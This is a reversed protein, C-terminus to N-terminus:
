DTTTFHDANLPEGRNWRYAVLPGGKGASYDVCVATASDLTPVGSMWYHGFFTPKESGGDLRVHQPLPMHRLAARDSEPLLAAEGYTTAARDWWRIRVRDRTHGDKDQFRHPSPLPIEIGKTMVEVAKFVSPAASDKEAPDEPETTADILLEQTLYRGDRLRPSLWDIFPKHWCAHVVRLEELDLWLPLSLFWEVLDAHLAPDPEVQTLFAAHQQRNKAGWPQRFRPRLYDGPNRVDPTHWAIANLEHNGMIALAAGADVMARVAQVTEVGHPGRDIFDGVFIATRNPHHWTGQRQQYGMRRLLAKLKDFQGHIDGIVDYDM